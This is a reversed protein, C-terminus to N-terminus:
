GDHDPPRPQERYDRMEPQYNEGTPDGKRLERRIPVVTIMEQRHIAPLFSNETATTLNKLPM